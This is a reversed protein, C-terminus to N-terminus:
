PRHEETVAPTYLLANVAAAAVASGGRESRNTIAPLDFARLAAKSEVAGVFGVPLGVVLAPAVAHTLIADLATPANGVVWVAGPGVDAAAREIAAASRTTGTAAPVDYEALPVTVETSTIGAAVMRSDAVIPAGAALADWGTALATEDLVLDDGYRVDASSHIVRETVARCLPPLHTLAVRSALIAMSEVEIPHVRSRGMRRM